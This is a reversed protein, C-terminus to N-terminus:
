SVFADFLEKLPEWAQYFQETKRDEVLDRLDGDDLALIFARGDQATDRCRDHFLKKKDFQRSVLLGFKGRSPSFRGALQDLENNAIDDRCSKCEM